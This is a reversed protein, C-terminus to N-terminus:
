SRGHELEGRIDDLSQFSRISRDFADSIKEISRSLAASAKEVEAEIGPEDPVSPVPARQLRWAKNFYAPPPTSRTEVNISRYHDLLSQGIDELYEQHQAFRNLLLRRSDIIQGREAFQGQLQELTERLAGIASDRIFTLDKLAAEISDSYEGCRNEHRRYIEGYQPYPDDSKFATLASIVAFAMGMALLGYSLISDFSFTGQVLGALAAGEPDDGGASKADRYHAALLNWFVMAVVWGASAGWAILKRFTDRHFVYPWVKKGIVASLFINVGAIMVAAVAGGVIGYEDNEKLFATNAASEVIWSLALVAGTYFSSPADHAPRRLGHDHKFDALEEYSERIAQRALALKGRWRIVAADFDGYATESAGTVAALQRLLSLEGLRQGYVRLNNDVDIQARTLHERIEAHIEAEAADPQDSDPPPLDKEGSERARRDLKLKEISADRDIVLFPDDPLAVTVDLPKFFGKLAELAKM